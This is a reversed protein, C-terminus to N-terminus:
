HKELNIILTKIENLTLNKSQLEIELRKERTETQRLQDKLHLAETELNRLLEYIFQFDEMLDLDDIDMGVTRREEIGELADFEMECWKQKALNYSLKM